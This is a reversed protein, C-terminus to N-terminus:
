GVLNILLPALFGALVVSGISVTVFGGVLMKPTVSDLFLQREESNSFNSNAVEAPLIATGPFGFLATIGLAISMWPSIKLFRGVLLSFLVNGITGFVITALLAPLIDLFVDPTASALNSLIVVILAPMALGYSNAKTLINKELFGLESFLVGMLLSMINADILQFGLLSTLGKAAFSALLAVVAVKALYVNGSQYKEPLDSFIKYPSTTEEQQVREIENNRYKEKFSKVEKKLAWSAIPYGAFGQVVVLLSALLALDSRGIANAAESMQIAAIVGGSLPPAGVLATEIGMLPTVVLFLAVTIGIIAAVCIVVTKWQEKLQKINLMTGMHVLLFGILISGIQLLMSDQFISTPMGLWFAILFFVSATFLMSVISKTRVAIVDGLAYICFIITISVLSNM